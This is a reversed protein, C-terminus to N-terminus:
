GRNYMPGLRNAILNSKSNLYDAFKNAANQM